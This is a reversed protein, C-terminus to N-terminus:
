LDLIGNKQATYAALVCAFVLGVGVLFYLAAEIRRGLRTEPFPVRRTTRATYAASRELQQVRREMGSMRDEMAVLADIWGKRDFSTAEERDTDFLKATTM